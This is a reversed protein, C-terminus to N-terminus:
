DNVFDQITWIEFQCFRFNDFVGIMLFSEGEMPVAPTRYSPSPQTSQKGMRERTMEDIEIIKDIRILRVVAKM